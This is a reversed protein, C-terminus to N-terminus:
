SMGMDAGFACRQRWPIVVSAAWPWAATPGEWWAACTSGASTAAEPWPVRVRPAAQALRGVVTM